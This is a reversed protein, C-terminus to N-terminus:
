LLLLGYRNIKPNWQRPPVMFSTAEPPLLPLVEAVAAGPVIMWDNAFLDQEDAISRM